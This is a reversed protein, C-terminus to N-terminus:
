SDPGFHSVYLSIDPLQRVHCHIDTCYKKMACLLWMLVCTYLEKATQTSPIDVCINNVNNEQDNMYCLFM